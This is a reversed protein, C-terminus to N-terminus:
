RERNLIKVTVKSENKFTEADKDSGVASGYHFPIAIKPQIIDALKAAESATMTYTGGVPLFIIDAKVEKTEPTVDTDGAHYIRVGNSLTLIYGVWDNAKPHFKKDLNYAPITNIKIKGFSYEKNSQVVTFEFKIKDSLDKPIFFKTTSKRIKEIDGISFHDFHSHTILILDAKPLNSDPLKFPDIYIKLNGDDIRIASQGYWHINDTTINKTEKKNQAIASITFLISIFLFIINKM